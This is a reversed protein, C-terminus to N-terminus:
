RTEPDIPNRKMVPVFNGVASISMNPATVPSKNKTENEAKLRERFLYPIADVTVKPLNDRAIGTMAEINNHPSLGEKVSTSLRTRINRIIIKHPPFIFFIDGRRIRKNKRNPTISADIFYKLILNGKTSLLINRIM